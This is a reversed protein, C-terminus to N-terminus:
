GSLSTNGWVLANNWSAYRYRLASPNRWCLTCTRPGQSRLLLGEDIVNFRWVDALGNRVFSVRLRTSLSRPDGELSRRLLRPESDSELAPDCTDQLRPARNRSTDALAPIGGERRRSARARGPLRPRPARSQRCKRQALVAGRTM